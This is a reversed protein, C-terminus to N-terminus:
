QEQLRYRLHFPIYRCFNFTPIAYGGNIAKKFMERTNVLGLDKYNIMTEQTIHSFDPEFTRFFDPIFEYADNKKRNHAYIM